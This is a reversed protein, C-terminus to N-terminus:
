AKQFDSSKQVIQVPLNRSEKMFQDSINQWIMICNLLEPVSFDCTAPCIMFGQADVKFNQLTM